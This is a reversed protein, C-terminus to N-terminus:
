PVNLVDRTPIVDYFRHIYRDFMKEFWFSNEQKRYEDFDEINAKHMITCHGRVSALPCTDSHMTAYVQRSDTLKKQIDRPRYYWNVRISDIPQTTENNTHLFEM